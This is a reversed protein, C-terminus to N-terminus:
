PRSAAGLGDASLLVAAAAAAAARDRALPHATRRHVIMVELGAAHPSPAAPVDVGGARRGRTRSACRGPRPPRVDLPRPIFTFINPAAKGWMAHPHATCPGAIHAIFDAAASEGDPSASCCVRHVLRVTSSTGAAPVIPASRKAWVGVVRGRASSRLPEDGRALELRGPPTSEVGDPSWYSFPDERSESRKKLLDVKQSSSLVREEGRASPSSPEPELEPPGGPSRGLDKLSPPRSSGKLGAAAARGAAGRALGGPDPARASRLSRPPDEPRRSASRDPWISGRRCSLATELPSPLEDLNTQTPSLASPAMADGVDCYLGFVASMHGTNKATSAAPPRIAANTM